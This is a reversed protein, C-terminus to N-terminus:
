MKELQINTKVDIKQQETKKFPWPLLDPHRGAIYGLCCAITLPLSNVILRPKKM